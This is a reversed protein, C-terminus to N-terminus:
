RYPAPPAGEVIAITGDVECLTSPNKVYWEVLGCSTCAYCGLEGVVKRSWVSPQVLAMKMRTGSDGRDLVSAIRAIRTASCAPCRFQSAMTPATTPIVSEVRAVLSNHAATLAALEARLAALQEEHTVHRPFCIGCEITLRENGDTM